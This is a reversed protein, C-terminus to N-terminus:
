LQSIIINIEKSENLSKMFDRLYIKYQYLDNKYTRLHKKVINSTIESDQKINMVMMTKLEKEKNKILVNILKKLIDERKKNVSLLDIMDNIKNIDHESVKIVEIIANIKNNLEFKKYKKIIIYDIVIIFIM